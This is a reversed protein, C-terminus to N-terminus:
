LTPQMCLNTFQYQLSLFLHPAIQKKFFLDGSGVFHPSNIYGVNLKPQAGQALAPTNLTALVGCKAHICGLKTLTLCQQM